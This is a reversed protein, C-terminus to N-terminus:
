RFSRASCISRGDHGEDDADLRRPRLGRGSDPHACGSAHRARRFLRRATRASLRGPRRGERGHRRAGRGRRHRGRRVRARQAAGSSLRGTRFYIDIFNVAVYTHRVRAEGPGPEGVDVTELKLVEPGGLKTFGSDRSTM